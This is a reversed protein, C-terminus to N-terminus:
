FDMFSCVPVHSKISLNTDKSNEMLFFYIIQKIQILALSSSDSSLFRGSKDTELDSSCNWTPKKKQKEKTRNKVHENSERREM